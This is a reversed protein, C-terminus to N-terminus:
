DYEPDCRECCCDGGHPMYESEIDYETQPPEVYANWYSAQEGMYEFTQLKVSKLSASYRKVSADAVLMTQRGQRKEEEDSGVSLQEEAM